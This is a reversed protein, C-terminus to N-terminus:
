ILRGILWYLGGVIAAVPISIPILQLLKWQKVHVSHWTGNLDETGPILWWDSVAVWLTDIFLWDFFEAGLFLAYFQWCCDWYRLAGNVWLIMVMPVLLMWAILLGYAFRRRRRLAGRTIRGLAIVREQVVGPYFFLGGLPGRRLVLIAMYVAYCAWMILIEILIRGFLDM